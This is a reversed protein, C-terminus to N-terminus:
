DTCVPRAPKGGHGLLHKAPRETLGASFHAFSRKFWDLLSGSSVPAGVLGLFGGYAPKHNEAPM